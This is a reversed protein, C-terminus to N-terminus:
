EVIEWQWRNMGKPNDNVAEINVGCVRLLDAEIEQLVGTRFLDNILRVSALDYNNLATEVMAATVKPKM